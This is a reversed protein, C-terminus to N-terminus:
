HRRQSAKRFYCYNFKQIHGSPTRHDEKLNKVLVFSNGLENQLQDTSYHIVPLESCQLPGDESFTAIIVHGEPKVSRLITKIYANRDEPSTLFHFVARDHWVDYAYAPLLANTINEEMWQVESSQAGLRNRAAALASASLDLVTLSSYGNSILDDVLTSAGGGIDIIAASKPVGTEQILQLSLVAHEQFWSVGTTAKSSYIKEWHEKLQM